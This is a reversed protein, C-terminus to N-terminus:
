HAFASWIADSLLKGLFIAIPILTYMLVVSYDLGKKESDDNKNEDM